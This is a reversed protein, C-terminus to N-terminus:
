SEFRYSQRYGGFGQITVTGRWLDFVLHRAVSLEFSTIGVELM